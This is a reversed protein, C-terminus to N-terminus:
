NNSELTCFRKFTKFDRSAVMERGRYDIYEIADFIEIINQNINSPYICLFEGGEIHSVKALFTVEMFKGDKIVKVTDGSKLGKYDSIDMITQQMNIDNENYILEGNINWCKIIDKESDNEHKLTIKDYECQFYYSYGKSILNENSVEYYWDRKFDYLTGDRLEIRIGDANKKFNKMINWINNEM